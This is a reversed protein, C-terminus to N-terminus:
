SPQPAVRRATVVVPLAFAVLMLKAVFQGEFFALSGFAISLFLFSDLAAAGLQSVGVAIMIRRQLLAFLVLGLCESGAFAVASALALTPSVLVSLATGATIGLFALRKSALRQVTDRLLFALGVLYVGAPAVLSTPWVSVIGYRHVTWNAAYVTAVFAALAFGVIMRRM